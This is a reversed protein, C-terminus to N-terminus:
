NKIKIVKIDCNNFIVNKDTALKFFHNLWKSHSVVLVIDDSNHNRKLNQIFSKIRNNFTIDNEPIYNYNLAVNSLDFHKNYNSVYKEIEVKEHRKNSITYGQTELLRDDLVILENKPMRFITDNIIKSTSLLNDLTQICRLLPSCYIKNFKINSLKDGAKKSQIMGEPTLQSDFHPSSTLNHYALGHRIFFIKM